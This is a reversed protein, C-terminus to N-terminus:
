PAFGGGSKSCLRECAQSYHRLRENWWTQLDRSMRSVNLDRYGMSSLGERLNGTSGERAGYARIVSVARKARKDVNSWHLPWEDRHKFYNAFADVGEALTHGTTGVTQARLRLIRPKPTPSGLVDCLRMITSLFETLQTQIVVFTTGILTELLQCEQEVVFEIFQSQGNAQEVRKVADNIMKQLGSIVATYSPDSISYEARGYIANIRVFRASVGKRVPNTEINDAMNNGEQLTRM